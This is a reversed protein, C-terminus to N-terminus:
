PTPSYLFVDSLSGGKQSRNFDGPVLNSALSDFLVFGGSGSLVPGTSGLNGGGYPPRFSRSVLTTTMTVRDYLYVNDAMAPPSGVATVPDATLDDARSAFAVYRGDASIRAQSCDGSAEEGQRSRSVLQVQGSLQDFLFINRHQAGPPRAAYVVFRGHGSIAPPEEGSYASTTSAGPAHSVLRTTGALRDYLYVDISGLDGAQGPVLDHLYSQFAVFRGDASIAASIGLHPYMLTAHSILVPKGAARDYVYLARDGPQTPQVGTLLDRARSSLVVFRGDASLSEFFSYHDGPRAPQGESHSLLTVTGAARDYAFVNTV